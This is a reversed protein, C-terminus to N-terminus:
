KYLGRSRLEEISRAYLDEGIPQGRAWEVFRDLGQLFDTKPQYGLAMKAKAIDAYNHRIDGVRYRGSISIESQSNYAKKLAEAVQIVTTPIGSGINFAEASQLSQELALKTADVVDDIYVFDRSELGDEYIDIPNGKLLSTSFISMIGTYPNKLSQGPGFVNQYRLAAAQIGTTEGFLLVMQEQTQKTIGYVSTPHILSAEDTALARMEKGCTPCRPEFIGNKMDMQKRAGPYQPGHESCIYKGEGYIARSSAVILKEIHGKKSALTNLLLGTGYVNVEAYRAIEYMSQGTGTEAAFHVISDAGDIAKEWDKANRVDGIMVECIDKVSSYLESETAREGHIQTSLNDFIRVENGEDVLRRALRSGIFGAGGSIAIKKM